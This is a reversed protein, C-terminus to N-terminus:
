IVLLGKKKWTSIKLVWTVFQAKWYLKEKWCKVLPTCGWGNQRWYARIPYCYTIHFWYILKLRHTQLKCCGCPFCNIESTLQIFISLKDLFKFFTTKYLIAALTENVIVFVGKNALFSHVPKHLCLFYALLILKLWQMNSSLFSLATPSVTVTPIM